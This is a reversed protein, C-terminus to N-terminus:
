YPLISASRGSRGSLASRPTGLNSQSRPTGFGGASGRRSLDDLELRSALGDGSALGSRAQSRPTAGDRDLLSRSSLASRASRDDTLYSGADDPDRDGLPTVPIEENQSESFKVAPKKGEKKKKSKGHLLSAVSDHNDTALAASYKPNVLISYSAAGTLLRSRVVADFSANGEAEDGTGRFILLLVRVLTGLIAKLVLFVLFALLLLTLLAANRQMVREFLRKRTVGVHELWLDKAMGWYTVFGAVLSSQKDPFSSLAWIGLLFHGLLAYPLTNATMLALDATYAPPKKCLKLLEYKEMLYQLGLSLALLAYVLPMATSYLFVVFILNMVEGYREALEFDPGELMKNMVRQTLAAPARKKTLWAKWFKLYVLLPRTVSTLAITIVLSRGVDTYWQATLDDFGGSLVYGEVPTGEVLAAAGPLRANAILPSVGMNLLQALFLKYAKSTQEGSLSHHHEYQATRRVIVKLVINSTVIAVSPLYEAVISVIFNLFYDQCADKNEMIQKDRLAQTCFCEKCAADALDPEAGLCAAPCAALDVAERTLTGKASAAVTVIAFSLVLCLLM